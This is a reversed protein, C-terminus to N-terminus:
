STEITGDKRLSAQNLSNEDSKFGGYSHLSELFQKTFLFTLINGGHSGVHELYFLGQFTKKIITKM